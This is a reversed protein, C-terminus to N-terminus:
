AHGEVTLMIVRRVARRRILWMHGRGQRRQFARLVIQIVRRGILSAVTGLRDVEDFLCDIFYFFADVRSLLLGRLPRAFIAWRNIAPTLCSLTTKLGRLPRCLDLPLTQRGSRPSKM